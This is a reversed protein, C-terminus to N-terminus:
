QLEHIRSLTIMQKKKLRLLKGRMNKLHSQLHHDDTKHALYLQKYGDYVSQEQQLRNQYHDGLRRRMDEDEIGLVLRWVGEQGKLGPTTKLRALTIQEIDLGPYIQKLLAILEKPQQRPQSLCLGVQPRAELGTGRIENLLTSILHQIALATEVLKYERIYMWDKRYLSPPPSSKLQSDSVPLILGYPALLSELIPLITRLLELGPKDWDRRRWRLWTNVLSSSVFRILTDLALAQRRNEEQTLSRAVMLNLSHLLWRDLATSSAQSRLPLKSDTDRQCAMSQLFTWKDLIKQMHRQRGPPPHNVSKWGPWVLLHAPVADIKSTPIGPNQHRFPQPPWIVLERFIPRGENLQLLHLFLPLHSSVLKPEVILISSPQPLRSHITREQRALHCTLWVLRQVTPSIWLNEDPVSLDGSTSCCSGGSRKLRKCDPCVRIKLALADGGETQSLSGIPAPARLLKVLTRQWSGPRILFPLGTSEWHSIHKDATLLIRNRGLSSPACRLLGEDILGRIFLLTLAQRTQEDPPNLTSRDSRHLDFFMLSSSSAPHRLQALMLRGMGQTLLGDDRTSTLGLIRPSMEHDTM